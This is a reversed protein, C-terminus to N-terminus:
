ARGRRAALRLLEERTYSPTMFLGLGGMGAASGQAARQARGKHHGCMGLRERGGVQWNARRRCGPVECRPMSALEAKREQAMRRNIASICDPCRAEGARGGAYYPHQPQVQWKPGVKGCDACTYDQELQAGYWTSLAKDSPRSM